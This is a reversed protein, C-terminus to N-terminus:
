SYLHQKLVYDLVSPTLVTSLSQQQNGEAAQRARTSSVKSLEVESSNNGDEYEYLSIRDAWQSPIDKEIGLRINTVYQKQSSATGYEASDRIFCVLKCSSMFDVLANAVTTGTYYKSNFLRILTDFGVIFVLDHMETLFKQIAQAKDVFRACKTIALYIENHNLDKAFREMMVLRDPLWAPAITKDANKVALLMLIVSNMNFCELALTRMILERHAITPPNFSSDFVIVSSKLNLNSTLFKKNYVFRILDNGDQLQCLESQYEALSPM